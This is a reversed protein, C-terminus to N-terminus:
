QLNLQLEEEDKSFFKRYVCIGGVVALAATGVATLAKLTKKM